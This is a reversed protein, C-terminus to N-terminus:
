VRGPPVLGTGWPPEKEVTSYATVTCAAASGERSQENLHGLSNNMYVATLM